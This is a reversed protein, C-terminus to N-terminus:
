NLRSPFRFWATHKPLHQKPSTPPLVAAQVSVEEVTVEAVLIKTEATWCHSSPGAFFLDRSGAQVEERGDESGLFAAFVM